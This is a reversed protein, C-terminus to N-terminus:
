RSFSFWVYLVIESSDKERQLKSNIPASKLEGRGRNTVAQIIVWPRFNSKLCVFSSIRNHCVFYLKSYDKVANKISESSFTGTTEDKEWDTIKSLKIRNASVYAEFETVATSKDLAAAKRKKSKRAVEIPLSEFSGNGLVATLDPFSEKLSLQYQAETFARSQDSDGSAAARSRGNGASSSVTTKGLTGASGLVVRGAPTSSFSIVSGLAGAASAAELLSRNNERSGPYMM